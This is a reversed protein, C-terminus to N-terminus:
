LVGYMRLAYLCALCASASLGWVWGAPTLYRRLLPAYVNLFAATAFFLHPAIPRTYASAGYAMYAALGPLAFFVLRNVKSDPARLLALIMLSFLIMSYGRLRDTGVAELYREYYGFYMERRGVVELATLFITDHFVVFVASVILLIAQMRLLSWRHTLVTLIVSAVFYIMAIHMLPTMALVIWYRKDGQLIRIAAYVGIAAALGNRVAVNLFYNNVGVMFITFAAIREWWPLTCLRNWTMGYILWILVVTVVIGAPPSLNLYQLAVLFQVFLPEIRGEWFPDAYIIMYIPRDPATEMSLLAIMAVGVAGLALAIAFFGVRPARTVRM